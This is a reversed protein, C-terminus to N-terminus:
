LDGSVEIQTGMALGLQLGLVVGTLLGASLLSIEVMRAAATLYYGTLADQVTSVVSLGSLLVTIGAAVIYSARTGPPFVELQVLAVTSATVLFG